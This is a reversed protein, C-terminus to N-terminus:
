YSLAMTLILSHWLYTHHPRASHTLERTAYRILAHTNMDLHTKLIQYQRIATPIGKLLPLHRIDITVWLFSQMMMDQADYIQKKPNNLDPIEYEEDLISDMRLITM